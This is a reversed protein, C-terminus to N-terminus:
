LYFSISFRNRDGLRYSGFVYDLQMSYGMVSMQLGLGANLNVQDNMMDRYDYRNEITYGDVGARVFIGDINLVRSTLLKEYGFEAGANAQIPQNQKQVIDLAGILSLASGRRFKHSVGLRTTMPSTDSHGNAWKMVAGRELSLGLRTM